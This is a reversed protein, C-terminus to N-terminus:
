SGKGLGVRELAAEAERRIWLALELARLGDEGSVEPPTQTIVSRVFSELELRLPEQLRDVMPFYPLVTGDERRIYLEVDRALLNVSAYLNEKFVRLKRTREMSTRSATIDVLTGNDFTIRANALDIKDTLVPVGLAEVKVPQSEVLWLVLDLDHIMLDLIVDVDTGRPNYRALRRIEMFRPNRIRDRVALFAPNFREVHGVQLIVGKEQALRVLAEGEERTRTIPKEMFLHRGAELITKGVEYHASTPVVCSVADVEDLLAELSPYARTRFRRAIEEARSPRVDYVGVLKADPIQALIRAHHQGLSGVGVVGVRLKM